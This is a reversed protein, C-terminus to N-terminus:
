TPAQPWSPLISRFITLDTSELSPPYHGVQEQASAGATTQMHDNGNTYSHNQQDYGYFDEDDEVDEQPQAMFAGGFNSWDMAM